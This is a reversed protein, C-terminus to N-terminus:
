EAIVPQESRDRQQLIFGTALGGLASVAVAGLHWVIVHPANQLPCHLSLVAVGFFGAFCGILASATGPNTVYGRRLIVAALIGFLLACVCGFRLCPFGRSVFHDLGFNRFLASVIWALAIVSSVAVRWGQVRVKAGPIAVQVSVMSFLLAFFFIPGCYFARQMPTLALYGQLGVLVALLISFAVFVGLTLSILVGDSPLATVPTLQTFLNGIGTRVRESPFFPEGPLAEDAQSLSQLLARCGACQQVHNALEPTLPRGAALFKELDRCNM